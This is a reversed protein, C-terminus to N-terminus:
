MKFRVGLTFYRGIIDAYTPTPYLMGPSGNFGGTIPGYVNFLNNINLFGTIPQGEYNFEYTTALNTLYYAPIPPLTYVALVSGRAGGVWNQQGIWLETVTASFENYSYGLSINARDRPNAATNVSETYAGGPTSVSAVVEQRTWLLRFNLSGNLNTWSNLDTTYGIETDFGGRENMAINQNLSIVQTPFNGLGSPGGTTVPGSAPNAYSFPRSILNCLPSTLSSELCVNYAAQSNGGLAGIANGIKVHFYDVSATLGPIFSPTAVVGLTNYISTEPKLNPNGGGVTNIPGQNGTGVCNAGTPAKPDCYVADTQGSSTIVQQQYLDWLTPARMDRSTSTRFRLDDNVSWELGLKYTNANFSTNVPGTATLGNTSYATYRYAGNLVVSEAFPL